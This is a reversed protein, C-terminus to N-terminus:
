DDLAGEKMADHLAERWPRLVPLGLRTTAAQGLVSWEPRAAPRVFEASTTPVVKDTDLGAEDAIARALDFWSTYESNTAHYIGGEAGIEAFELIRAALDATWTPQGVQDTVVSVQEGDRLKRLITRGFSPRGGGYLWATRVVLATGDTAELVAQEGAAKSRGYANIPSIAAREDYPERSRGDFVYDTSVQVVRAGSEHAARALAGAATANIATAAAEDQEAADVATFAATNVVVDVDALAARVASEDTIDLEARSPAIVEQRRLARALDQALMGGGGTILWRM